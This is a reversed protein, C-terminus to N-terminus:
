KEAIQRKNKKECFFMFFCYIRQGPYHNMVDTLNSFYLVKATMSEPVCSYIREKFSEPSYHRSFPVRHEDDRWVMKAQKEIVINRQDCYPSTAVFYTNDLYLPVIGYRGKDDLLRAAEGLFQVDANGMFCEYACHASMVSCFENPLNTNGANAGIKIGRIGQAYALDLSYARVGIKNLIRSWPSGGAAIDIYVDDKSIGLHRFALYHELCNEIFVDGNNEYHRKLDVFDNLWHQFDSIDIDVEEVPIGISLLREKLGMYYDKNGLPDKTHDHYSMKDEIPSNRSGILQPILVLMDELAKQTEARVLNAFYSRARNKLRTIINM